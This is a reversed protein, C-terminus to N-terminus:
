MSYFHRVCSQFDANSPHIYLRLIPSINLDQIYKPSFLAFIIKLATYAYMCILTTHLSFLSISLFRISYLLLSNLCLKFQFSQPSTHPFYRIFTQPLTYNNPPPVFFLLHHLPHPHHLLSLPFSPTPLPLSPHQM